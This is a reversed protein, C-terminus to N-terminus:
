SSHFLCFCIGMYLIAVGDLHKVSKILLFKLFPCLSCSIEHVQLTHLLNCTAEPFDPRLALAHKYSKIAAEVHGSCTGWLFAHLAYAM